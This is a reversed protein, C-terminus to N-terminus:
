RKHCICCDIAPRAHLLMSVILKVFYPLLQHFNNSFDEQYTGWLSHIMDAIKSLIYVDEDDQLLLDIASHITSSLCQVLCRCPKMKVLIHLIFVNM